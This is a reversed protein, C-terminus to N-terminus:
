RRPPATRASAPAVRAPPASARSTPLAPAQWQTPELTASPRSRALIETAHLRLVTDVDVLVTLHERGPVVAVPRASGLQASVIRSWGRDASASFDAALAALAGELADTFPLRAGAALREALPALELRRVREAAPRLPLTVELSGAALGSAGIPAAGSASRVFHPGGNVPETLALRDLRIARGDEALVPTGVLFARGTLDLLPLPGPLQLGLGVALAERAQFLDARVIRAQIAPGPTESPAAPTTELPAEAAVATALADRLPQLPVDFRLRLRSAAREMDAGTAGASAPTPLPSALLPAPRPEDAPVLTTRAEVGFRYALVGPREGAVVGIAALRGPEIRLHRPRRGDGLPIPEHLAQWVRELPARVHQVAVAGSDPARGARIAARRGAARAALGLARTVPEALHLEGTLLPVSRPYVIPSALQAVRLEFDTGVTVSFPYALLLQGDREERRERAWGYGRAALRYTFPVVVAARGEIMDIRPTGARTIEGTCSAGACRETRGTSECTAREVWGHLKRPTAPLTEALVAREAEIALPLDVTVLTSVSLQPPPPPGVPPLRTFDVEPKCAAVLLAAGLVIPLCRWGRRDIRGGASTVSLEM